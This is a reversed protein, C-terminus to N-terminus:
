PIVNMLHLLGAGAADRGSVTFKSLATRRFGNGSHGEPFDGSVGVLGISLFVETRPVFQLAHRTM